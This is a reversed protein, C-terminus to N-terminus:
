RGRHNHETETLFTISNLGIVFIQGSGEAKLTLTHDNTSLLEGRITKTISNDIFVCKVNKRILENM